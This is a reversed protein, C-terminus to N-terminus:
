FPWNDKSLVGFHNEVLISLVHRKIKFVGKNYFLTRINADVICEILTAKQQEKAFSFAENFESNNYVKRWNLGYAEAIKTFDPNYEIDVGYTNKYIKNQLERVM